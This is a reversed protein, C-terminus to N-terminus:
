TFFEKMASGALKLLLPYKAFERILSTHREFDAINEIVDTNEKFIRFVRGLNKDSLNEYIKRLKLGTSIERGYNEKWEKEYQLLNDLHEVAIEAAKMSYFIGGGTLPKVQCAADGLLAVNKTAIKGNGLSIAGAQKEIIEGKIEKREIFRTLEHIPDPGIYGIRTTEETVPILWFFFPPSVHLEVFDDEPEHSMVYQAGPYFAAELPFSNAKRVTSFPGDCGLLVDCTYKGKTTTVEIVTNANVDLVKEKRHIDLGQSFHKDLGARDIVHAARTREIEFWENKLFFRAGDIQRKIVGQPFPILSTEVTERGILGACQVPKGIEPHEELLMPTFGKKKLLQGTYCGALGSGAIIIDM